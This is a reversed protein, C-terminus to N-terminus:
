KVQLDNLLKINDGQDKVTQELASVRTTLDSILKALGTDSGSGIQAILQQLSKKIGTKEFQDTGETNGYIEKGLMVNAAVLGSSTDGVVSSVDDLNASVDRTTNELNLVRGKLSTSDSDTGIDSLATVVDGRLGEDNSEGVILSFDVLSRKIDVIDYRITGPTTNDSGIANEARLVRASLGNTPNDVTNQLAKIGDEANAMRVTISGIEGDGSRGIYSNILGIEDNTAKLNNAQNALRVYVSELTAQGRPGLEARLRSVEDTIQGVDSNVWDDEIKTLRAEHTSIAKANQMIKYKMGSGESTPDSDGNQNFGTYAGIEGKLFIIDARLTRNKPDKVPDYTGIADETGKVRVALADIDERYQKSGTELVLIDSVAKNLTVLLNQDGLSGINETILNVQDIIENIKNNHIDGNFQLQVANKQIAVGTRNLEGDNGYQEKAGSLTEGNAVWKIRHQDADLPVGDVFPIRPLPGIKLIM